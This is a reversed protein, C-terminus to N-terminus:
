VVKQRDELQSAFLFNYSCDCSQEITSDAIIVNYVNRNMARKTVM